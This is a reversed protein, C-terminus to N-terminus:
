GQSQDDWMSPMPRVPDEGNWGVSAERVSRYMDRVPKNPTYLEIFHGLHARADLFVPVTADESGVEGFTARMLERIGLSNLRSVEAELDDPLWTVHHLQNLRSRYATDLKVPALEHVQQLELQISGWQAMAATHDFIGEEGDSVVNHAVPHEAVFFPGAGVCEVWWAAAKRLDEVVYCVQVIPQRVMDRIAIQNVVM